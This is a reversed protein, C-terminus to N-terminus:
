PLLWLWRDSGGDRWVELIMVFAPVLAFTLLAPRDSAFMLLVPAGLLAAVCAVTVNRTSRWALFATLASTLTLLALVYWRYAGPKDAQHETTRAPTSAM